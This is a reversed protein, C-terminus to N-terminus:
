RYTYQLIEQHAEIIGRKTVVRVVIAHILGTSTGVDAVLVEANQMFVNGGSAIM